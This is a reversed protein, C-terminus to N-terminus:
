QGGGRTFEGTAPDFDWVEQQEQAAPLPESNWLKLLGEPTEYISGPLIGVRKANEAAEITNNLRRAWVTLTNDREGPTANVDFPVVVRGNEIRFDEQKYKGTQMLGAYERRFKALESEFSRIIGPHAGKKSGATRAVQPNRLMNVTYDTGAKETMQNVADAADTDNKATALKKGMLYAITQQVKQAQVPDTPMPEGQLVRLAQENGSIMLALSFKGSEGSQFFAATAAPNSLWQQADGLVASMGEPGVITYMPGLIPHQLLGNEYMAAITKNNKTLMNLYNHDEYLELTRKMSDDLYALESNLQAGSLGKAGAVLRERLAGYQARVATQLGQTDIEGNNATYSKMLEAMLGLEVNAAGTRQMELFRQTDFGERKQQFEMSSLQQDQIYARQSNALWSEYDIGLKAAEKRGWLEGEQEPTLQEKGGQMAQFLRSVTRGSPDFGLADQAAARLENSFAPLRKQADRLKSEVREMAYEQPIRGKEVALNLKDFEAKVDRFYPNQLAEDSFFMEQLRPNAAVDLADAVSRLKEKVDEQAKEKQTEIFVQAGVQAAQAVAGAYDVAPVIVSTGGRLNIPTVEPASNPNVSFPGSM